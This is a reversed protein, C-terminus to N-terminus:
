RATRGGGRVLREKFGGLEPRNDRKTSRKLPQESDGLVKYKLIMRRCLFRCSKVCFTVAASQSVSAGLLSALKAEDHPCSARVGQKERMMEVWATLKQRYGSVRPQNTVRMEGDFPDFETLALELYRTLGMLLQRLPKPLPIARDKNGKGSRVTILGGQLDVDKVRLALAESVRLGCGYLLKCVLGAEREVGTLLEATEGPTLVVPLRQTQQARKADIDALEM